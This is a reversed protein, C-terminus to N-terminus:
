QVVNEVRGSNIDVWTLPYAGSCSFEGHVALQDVVECDDAVTTNWVTVKTLEVNGTNVM